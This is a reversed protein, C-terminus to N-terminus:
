QVMRARERGCFEARNISNSRREKILILFLSLRIKGSSLQVASRFEYYQLM